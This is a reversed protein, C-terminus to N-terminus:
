GGAPPAAAVSDDTQRDFLWTGRISVAYSNSLTAICAAVDGCSPCRLVFGAGRYLAHDGIRSRTRCSQCLRETGTVERAFIEQLVGAIANGDTHM